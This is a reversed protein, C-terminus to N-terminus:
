DAAIPDGGVDFFKCSNRMITPLVSLSTNDACHLNSILPLPLTMAVIIYSILDIMITINQGQKRQPIPINTQHPRNTNRIKLVQHPQLSLLELLFQVIDYFITVSVQETM